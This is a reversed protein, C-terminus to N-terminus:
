LDGTQGLGAADALDDARYGPPLLRLVETEGRRGRLKLEGLPHTRFEGGLREATESSTVIVCDEGPRMAARALECLREASNVTDGVITYNLRASSGVNGVTVPGSHLGIRVLVPSEGRDRRRLNDTRIAEAIALAALAARRPHDALLVPAGWFVMMGDGLYKDVTGEQAEVCAELLEFHRNLFAAVENAGLRESMGTFGVIDTFMVTVEREVSPPAEGGGQGILWRVLARPVYAEFWRLGEIMANFAGAAEDVEKLRSPKLQRIAGFELRRAMRAAAALEIVPRSVKHGLYFAAILALVLILLGALGAYWMRNLAAELTEERLYTGVTWVRPGYDGIEHYVYIYTDGDVNAIHGHGALIRESRQRDIFRGGDWLRALLPDGVEDLTPLPKGIGQGPFGFLLSPHALVYDRGLLIFAHTGHRESQEVLLSSLNAVSVLANVHGIVRDGRRVPARLNVAPDGVAEGWFVDGWFPQSALQVATRVRAGQETDDQYIRHRFGGYESRAVRFIRGEDSIYRIASIQPLATLVGGALEVFRYDTFPNIGDRTLVNALGEAATEVPDLRYRIGDEVLAITLEARDRALETTNRQASWIAVGLVAAVALLVLGSLGFALVSGIALRLRPRPAAADSSPELDTM